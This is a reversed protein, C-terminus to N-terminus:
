NYFNASVLKYTVTGHSYTVPYSYELVVNRFRDHDASDRRALTFTQIGGRKKKNYAINITTAKFEQEKAEEDGVKVTQKWSDVNTPKGQTSIKDLSNTQFDISYFSPSSSLDMARLAPILQENDFIFAKSKLKIQKSETNNEPEESESENESKAPNLYIRKFNAKSTDYDYSIEIRYDYQQYGKEISSPPNYPETVPVPGHAERWSSLPKLNDQVSLFEVYTTVSSDMSKTETGLTYQVKVSLETEYVYRKQGNLSTSKFTTKYTGGEPYDMSFKGKVASSSKEFSVAYELTEEFNEPIDKLGTNYLWNQNLELSPTSSCAALLVLPAALLISAFRKKKM